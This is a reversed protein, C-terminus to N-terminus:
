TNRAADPPPDKPAYARDILELRGLPRNPEERERREAELLAAHAEASVEPPKPAYQDFLARLRQLATVARARDMAQLAMIPSAEDDALILQAWPAGPPFAIRHVLAWEFFREGFVNRVWVGHEDVRLRPRAATLIVGAMLAGIGILGIQDATRFPVGTDSQKLLLGIVFMVAFVATACVGAILTIKRPRVQLLIPAQDRM